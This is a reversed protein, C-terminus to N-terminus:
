RAPVGRARRISPSPHSRPVDPEADDTAAIDGQAGVGRAQSQHRIAGSGHREEIGVRRPRLPQGIVQHGAAQRPGADRGREIIEEGVWGDGPDEIEGRRWEVLLDVDGRQLGVLV